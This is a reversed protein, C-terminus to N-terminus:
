VKWKYFYFLLPNKGTNVIGHLTGAACYMMSGPSV